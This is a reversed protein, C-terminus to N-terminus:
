DHGDSEGLLHDDVVSVETMEAREVRELASLLGEYASAWEISSRVAYAVEPQIMESRTHPNLLKLAALRHGGALLQGDLDGELGHARKTALARL